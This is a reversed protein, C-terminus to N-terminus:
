VSCTSEYNIKSKNISLIALESNKFQNFAEIQPTTVAEFSSKDFGYTKTILSYKKRWIRKSLSRYITSNEIPRPIYEKNGDEYAFTWLENTFIKGKHWLNIVARGVEEHRIHRTYEGMPNHTLILDFHKKPLLKLITKEVENHILPKLEPSDDLDGMIGDSNLIKLANHFRPARDKDKGRSLCVIYWNLLPHSLITGGAWLTEDDPHAVIIAINRLNSKKSDM